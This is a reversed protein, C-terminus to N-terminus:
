DFLHIREPALDLRQRKRGDSVFLDIVDLPFGPLKSLKSKTGAVYNLGKNDGFTDWGISEGSKACRCATLLFDWLAPHNGFPIEYERGNWHLKKDKLSLVLDGREIAVNKAEAPHSPLEGGERRLWEADAQTILNLTEAVDIVAISQNVNKVKVWMWEAKPYQEFARRFPRGLIQKETDNLHRDWLRQAAALGQIRRRTADFLEQAKRSPTLPVNDM